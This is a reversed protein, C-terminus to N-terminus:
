NVPSSMVIFIIVTLLIKVPALYLLPIMLLHHLMWARWLNTSTSFRKGLLTKYYSIVYWRLLSNLHFVQCALLFLVIVYSVHFILWRLEKIEFLIKCINEPPSKKTKPIPPKYLKSEIADLCQLYWPSFKFDPPQNNLETTLLDHNSNLM